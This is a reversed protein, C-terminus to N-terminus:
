NCSFLFSFYKGAVNIMGAMGAGKQPKGERMKLKSRSLREAGDTVNQSEGPNTDEDPIDKIRNVEARDRAEHEKKIDTAILYLKFSSHFSFNIGIVKESLLFINV